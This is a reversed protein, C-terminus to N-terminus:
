DRNLPLVRVRTGAENVSLLAGRRLEAAHQTLAIRVIKLLRLALMDLARLQM